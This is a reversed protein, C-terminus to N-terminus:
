HLHKREREIQQRPKYVDPIKADPNFVAEGSEVKHWDKEVHRRNEMRAEHLDDASRAKANNEEFGDKTVILAPMSILRRAPRGCPCKLSEPESLGRWVEFVGCKPCSYDYRPM